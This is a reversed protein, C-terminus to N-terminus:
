ESRIEEEHLQADKLIQEQRQQELVKEFNRLEKDRLYRERRKFNRAAKRKEYANLRRSTSM